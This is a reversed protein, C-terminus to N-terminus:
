NLQKGAERNWFLLIALLTLLANMAVVYAAAYAVYEGPVTPEETNVSDDNQSSLADAMWFLQWNPIAAYFGTAAWNGADPLPKAYTGGAPVRPPADSRRFVYAARNAGPKTNSLAYDGLDRYSWQQTTCDYAAMREAKGDLATVDAKWGQGDKWASAPNEEGLPPLPTAKEANDTWLTFDSFDEIRMPEGWREIPAMEQPTFDYTAVWLQGEGRAPAATWPERANRGILYDSMLGVMFLCGCILLNPVLAFRTSLATALTGMSWVSFTVLILAPIVRIALGVHQGQDTKFHGIIAFVPLIIALAVIAAMSFSSRTVYNWAGAAAMAIALCVFFGYLMFNDIWFQDTSVRLAILTATGTIFCFVVTSASIGLIKAVVFVPRRVPKSLLLLATGNDIERSIAYSSLMIALGWGLVMMTAMASDIVLKEQANFVFLTLIPYFGILTLAAVLMLLFIPERLSERFTNKAIQFLTTFM